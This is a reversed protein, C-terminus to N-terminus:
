SDANKCFFSVAPYWRSAQSIKTWGAPTDIVSDGSRAIAMQVAIVLLSNDLEIGISGLTLDGAGSAFSAKTQVSGVGRFAALASACETLTNTSPTYSSTLDAPESAHAVYRHS